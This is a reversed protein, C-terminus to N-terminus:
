LAIEIKGDRVVTQASAFTRAAGYRLVQTYTQEQKSRYGSVKLLNLEIPM